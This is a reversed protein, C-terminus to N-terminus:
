GDGFKTSITSVITVKQQDELLSGNELTTDNEWLNKCKLHFGDSFQTIEIKLPRFGKVM